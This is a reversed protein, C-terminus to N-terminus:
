LIFTALHLFVKLTFHGKLCFYNHKRDFLDFNKSKNKDM